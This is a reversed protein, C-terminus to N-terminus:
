WYAERFGPVTLRAAPDYAGGLSTFQLTLSSKAPVRLWDAVTLEGRRDATGEALVTGAGTDVDIVQRAPVPTPYRLRQGVASVEWGEPLGGVVQLPIPADATGDNVLTIRGTVGASGYDLPYTLPYALGGGPTPLGTSVPAQEPGYRLPDPCRWQAVWGILGVNWSGAAVAPDCRLLQAAATLTRGALTIALPEEGSGFTMDRRLEHLLRDRDGISHCTGTVTVIREDAWVPSPHTGHGRARNIKDYRPPPLSEWGEVSVIKHGSAAGLSLERWAISTAM